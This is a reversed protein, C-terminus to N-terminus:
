VKICPVSYNRWLSCVTTLDAKDPLTNTTHSFLGNDPGIDVLIRAMDHWLYLVTLQGNQYEPCPTQFFLDFYKLALLLLTM